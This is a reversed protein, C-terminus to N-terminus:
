QGAHANLYTTFATNYLNGVLADLAKEASSESGGIVTAKYLTEPGNEKKWSYEVEGTLVFGKVKDKGLCSFNIAKISLMYEAKDASVVSQNDGQSAAYNFGNRLTNQFKQVKEGCVNLNDAIASHDLKLHASDTVALPVPEPNLESIGCGTMAVGCLAIASLALLAKKM